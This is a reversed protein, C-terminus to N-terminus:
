DSMLRDKSYVENPNSPMGKPLKGQKFLEQYVDRGGISLSRAIKRAEKFPLFPHPSEHGLFDHWSFGEDKYIRHPGVPIGEPIKGQKHLEIYKEKGAIKLKHIITKAEQYPLASGKKMRKPEYGLFDAFNIWGENKYVLHPAAPIDHRRKGSRCYDRWEDESTFGLGRAIKRAESFPLRSKNRIYRNKGLYDNWNIWGKDMYVKTPSGPLEKPLKGQKYLSQYERTSPINLSRIIDKSEEFPPWTHRLKNAHGPKFKLFNGKNNRSTPEGCGCKCLESKKQIQPTV